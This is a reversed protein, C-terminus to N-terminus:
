DRRTFINVNHCRSDPHHSLLLLHYVLEYIMFPRNVASNVFGDYPRAPVVEPPLTEALPEWSLWHVSKQEVPIIGPLGTSCGHVM